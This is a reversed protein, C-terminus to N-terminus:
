FLNYIIIIQTQAPGWTICYECMDPLGFSYFGSDPFYNEKERGGFGLSVM